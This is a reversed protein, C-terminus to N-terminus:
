EGLSFRTLPRHRAYARDISISRTYIMPDRMISGPAFPHDYVTPM